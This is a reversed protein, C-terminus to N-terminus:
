TSTGHLWEEVVSRHNDIWKQAAVKEDMGSSIDLMVSQIDSQTWNFREIIAYAGPQEAQFGQRALTRVEEAGGFVEQPDELYKLDWKDFAWHPSWLTVVIWENNDYASTLEALMGASSSAELELSLGYQDIADQTNTMMGAGPDIGVIQGGFNDAYTELDAISNVETLYSPVALGIKCGELNTAVMDIDEGYVDWYNKQTAPLWASTTFDLEGKALGQYLIGADVNVMDVDYGAEQLVLTLVNTSAIEGDWLVYGFQLSKKGSAPSGSLAVSILVLAVVVAAGTMVMNRVNKKM